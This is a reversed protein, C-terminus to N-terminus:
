QQALKDLYAQAQENSRHLVVKVQHLRPLIPQTFAAKLTNLNKWAVQELAVAEELAPKVSEGREAAAKLDRVLRDVECWAKRADDLIREEVQLQQPTLAEERRKREAWARAEKMVPEEKRRKFFKWM